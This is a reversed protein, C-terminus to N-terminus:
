KTPTGPFNSRYLECVAWLSMAYPNAWLSIIIKDPDDTKRVALDKGFWDIVQDIVWADALMEVREPKDSHLYPM